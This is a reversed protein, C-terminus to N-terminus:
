QRMRPRLLWLLVVAIIAFPLLRPRIAVVLSICLLALPLWAPLRRLQPEALWTLALLVGMRLCVAGAVEERQDADGLLMVAGAVLLIVALVGISHRRM